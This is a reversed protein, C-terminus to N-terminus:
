HTDCLKRKSLMLRKVHIEFLFVYINNQTGILNKSKWYTKFYVIEVRERSRIALYVM